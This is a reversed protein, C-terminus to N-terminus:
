NCFTFMESRQDREEQDTYGHCEGGHQIKNQQYKVQLTPSTGEQHPVPFESTFKPKYERPLREQVSAATVRKELFPLSPSRKGRRPTEPPRVPDGMQDKTNGINASQHKVLASSNLITLKSLLFDM